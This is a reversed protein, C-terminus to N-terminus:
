FPNKAGRVEFHLHAGTSRGTNGVEGITQGQTVQQGQSVYVTNLHAYVTQIGKDHTIIVMDGYGGNYGGTRAVIIRGSAAALVPTGQTAAIDIGNHGHLGQTKRGGVVPRVLFGSPASYTYSNLIRSTKNKSKIKPAQTVEIEGDPVILTEGVVLTAEVSTGNYTAVDQADAKYKKSISTITEGKKVAHKIGTIPLIVLTDGKTITKSTLNNAWIITNVSVNFLKAVDTITDGQKVEYVSVTDTMPFDIDETSVRMPGSIAQLSDQSSNLSSEGGETTTGDIVTPKFLAMTQSTSLAREESKEVSPDLFVVKIRGSIAAFVGAHLPLPPAVAIFAMLVIVIHIM